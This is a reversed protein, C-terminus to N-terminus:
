LKTELKGLKGLKQLGSDLLEEHKKQDHHINSEPEPASAAQQLGREIASNDLEELAVRLKEPEHLYSLSKMTYSDVHFGAAEMAMISAAVEPINQSNAYGNIITNWTVDSYQVQHKAMMQKIKEAGLMQGNYLFASLLLTWTRMSPKVHTITKGDSDESLPGSHFMDEVVRVCPGLGRPTRRLGILFENYTHDTQALPAITPHGQLVLERFRNYIRQVTGLRSQCRFFTALMLYLTVPSPAIKEGEERPTYHPPIVLLEKLPTIDHITTYLDLMSYFVGAPDAEPNMQKVTFLYHYHFIKSAVHPNKRIEEKADVEHILNETRDRDGRTVADTLLTLYTYSDFVHHHVKMFHLMDAALQPDGTKFANSLVINMMDRNPRVGMELLKPLIRFNRWNDGDQISDLTLLKCCHRMVGESEMTFLPDKIPPIRRLAELALDVDGLATFRWMFCLATEASMQISRKKMLQLAKAVAEPSARRVYLRVGRQPLSIIPWDRPNLCAEMLSEYTHGNSQWDKLWDTYYFNDLYLLCDVVMTFDPKELTGTTAILFDLCTKPDNQLLWIALRQWLMAKEWRSMAQWAERFSGHCDDQIKKLM